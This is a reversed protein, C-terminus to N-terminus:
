IWEIKHVPPVNREKIYSSNDAYGLFLLGIVMDEERLKLYQKLHNSTTMGGTSWFGAAGLSEVGLLINQVACSAAALEEWVPIKPLSGRQMIAIILHSAKNGMQQLKDYKNQMFGDGVHQKYLGAHDNCFQILSENTYVKFLWPETSGHNPAFDALMLLKNVEEDSIKKNNFNSPKISRRHTIIKELVSFNNTFM